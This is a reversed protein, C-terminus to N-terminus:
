LAVLNEVEVVTAFKGSTDFVSAFSTAFNAAPTTSVPPAGQSTFLFNFRFPISQPQHLFQNMFFVLHLFDRSVTGKFRLRLRVFWRFNVKERGANM